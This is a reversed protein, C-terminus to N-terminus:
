LETLLFQIQLEPSIEIFGLVHSGNKGPDNLTFYGAVFNCFCILESLQGLLCHINISLIRLPQLKIIDEIKPADLQSEGCADGGIFCAQRNKAM